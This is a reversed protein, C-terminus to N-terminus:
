CILDNYNDLDYRIGHGVQVFGKQTIMSSSDLGKPVDNGYELMAIRQMQQMSTHSAYKKRYYFPNDKQPIKLGFIPYGILAGVAVFAGLMSLVGSRKKKFHGGSQPDPLEGDHDEDVFGTNHAFDHEFDYMNMYNDHIFARRDQNQPKFNFRVDNWHAPWVENDNHDVHKWDQPLPLPLHRAELLTMEKEFYEDECAYDYRYRNVVGIRSARLLHYPHSISKQTRFALVLARNQSM